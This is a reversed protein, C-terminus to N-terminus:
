ENLSCREPVQEPWPPTLCHFECHFEYRRSAHGSKPQLPSYNAMPFWIPTTRTRSTPRAAGARRPPAEIRMRNIKGIVARGDAGLACHRHGVGVLLLSSESEGEGGRSDRETGCEGDSRGHVGIGHPGLADARVAARARRRRRTANLVIPKRARPCRLVQVRRTRSIRRNARPDRVPPQPESAM